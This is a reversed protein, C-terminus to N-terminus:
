CNYYFTESTDTLKPNFMKVTMIWHYDTYSTNIMNYVVWLSENYNKAKLYQPSDLIRDVSIHVNSIMEQQMVNDLERM